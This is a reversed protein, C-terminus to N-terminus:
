RRVLGPILGAIQVPRGTRFSENAAAGVALAFAGDRQSASQGVMDGSEAQEGAAPPGSSEPRKGSEPPGYLATLMREDAGGHGHHGTVVPIDAPPEWLRRLRITAGGANAMPVEGHIASGATPDAGTGAGDTGAGDTGAGDAGGRPRQWTSEVVELELRGASGNFMVRCGEWPSYATLHYSMSAGSAYRVLVAMDDEISIDGDFVNRDRIYGSDAEADLYLERLARDAAMDLAFPDRAADPSDHARQYERRLRHRRGADEGYFGLRGYGFVERPESGLWWNVLDFHHSAKHVM